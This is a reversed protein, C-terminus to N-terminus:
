IRNNSSNTNNDNRNGYVITRVESGTGPGEQYEKLLLIHDVQKPTQRRRKKHLQVFEHQVFLCM